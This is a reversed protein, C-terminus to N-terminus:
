RLGVMQANDPELRQIKRHGGLWDRDMELRHCVLPLWRRGVVPQLHGREGMHWPLPKVREDAALLAFGMRDVLARWARAREGLQSAPERGLGRVGARPGRGVLWALAFVPVLAVPYGQLSRCSRLLYRRAFLGKASTGSLWGHATRRDCRRNTPALPCQLRLSDWLGVRLFFHFTRKQRECLCTMNILFWVMRSVPQPLFTFPIALWAGFPPYLYGSGVAYIDKGALLNSAAQLYVNEWESTQRLNFPVALGLFLILGLVTNPHDRTLGLIRKHLEPVACSGSM